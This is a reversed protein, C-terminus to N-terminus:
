LFCVSVSKLVKNLITYLVFNSPHFFHLCQCGDVFTYSDVRGGPHRVKLQPRPLYSTVFVALEPNAAQHLKAMQKMLKCRIRTAFTQSISISIDALLQPIAPAAKGAKPKRWFSGYADRIRQSDEVSAMQVDYNATPSQRTKYQRVHVVSVPLSTSIAKIYTM